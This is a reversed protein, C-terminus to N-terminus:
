IDKELFDRGAFHLSITILAATIVPISHAMTKCTILDALSGRFEISTTSKLCLQEYRRKTCGTISRAM